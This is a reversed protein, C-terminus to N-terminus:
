GLGTARSFILFPSRYNLIIRGNIFIRSRSSSSRLHKLIAHVLKPLFDDDTEIFNWYEEMVIAMLNGSLSHQM